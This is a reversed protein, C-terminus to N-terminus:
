GERYYQHKFEGIKRSVREMVFSIIHSLGVHLFFFSKVIMGGIGEGKDFFGVGVKIPDVFTIGARGGHVSGQIIGHSLAIETGTTIM